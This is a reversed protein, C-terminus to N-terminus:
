GDAALGMVRKRVIEFADQWRLRSITQLGGSRLRRWAAPDQLVEKIRTAGVAPLPELLLANDDNLLWANADNINTAVVCGSAMYEFPQYSPHPTMMFVLGLDARRYLDAVDKMSGLLGLNQVVGEL